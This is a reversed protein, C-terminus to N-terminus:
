SESSYMVTQVVVKEHLVKKVNMGLGRNKIVGKLAGFM